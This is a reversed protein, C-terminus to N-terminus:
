LERRLHRGRRRAGKGKGGECGRVKRQQLENIIKQDAEVATQRSERSDAPVARYGRVEGAAVLWRLVVDM